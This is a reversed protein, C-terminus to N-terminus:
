SKVSNLYRSKVTVFNINGTDLERGDCFDPATRVKQCFCGPQDETINYSVSCLFIKIVQDAFVFGHQVAAEADVAFLCRLIAYLGYWGYFIRQTFQALHQASGQPIHGTASASSTFQGAVPSVNIRSGIHVAECHGRGVRPPPPPPPTPAILHSRCLSEM